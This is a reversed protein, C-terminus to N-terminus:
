LETIKNNGKNLTNKLLLQFINIFYLVICYLVFLLLKPHGKGSDM